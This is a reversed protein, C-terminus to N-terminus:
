VNAIHRSSDNGLLLKTTSTEDSTTDDNILIAMLLNKTNVLAKVIQILM